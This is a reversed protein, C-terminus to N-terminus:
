WPLEETVETKHWGLNPLVQTDTKEPVTITHARSNLIPRQEVELGMGDANFNSVWIPVDVWSDPTERLHNHKLAWVEAEDVYYFQETIGHAGQRKDTALLIKDVYYGDHSPLGNHITHYYVTPKSVGWHRALTDGAVTTAGCVTCIPELVKKNTM